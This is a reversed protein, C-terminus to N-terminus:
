LYIYMVSVFFSRIIVIPPLTGHQAPATHSPHPNCDARSITAKLRRVPGHNYADWAIVLYRYKGVASCRWQYQFSWHGNEQLNAQSLGTPGRWTDAIQKAGRYVRVEVDVYPQTHVDITQTTGHQAITAQLSRAHPPLLRFSWVPSVWKNWGTQTDDDVVRWYFVAGAPDMGPNLEGVPVSFADDGDISGLGRFRVQDLVEFPQDNGQPYHDFLQVYCRESDNACNSFSQWSLVPSFGTLTAGDSPSPDAFPIFPPPASPQLPPQDAQPLGAQFGGSVTTLPTDITNDDIYACVTYGTAVNPTYSYQQSYSGPGIPDGADLPTAGYAGGAFSTSAEDAPTPACGMNARSEVYTYLTRALQSSGSATITVPLGQVPNPSLAISISASPPQAQFGGSVTTLPTDITNDDIYACVTYGTAV